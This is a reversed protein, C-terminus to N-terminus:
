RVICLMQLLFDDMDGASVSVTIGSVPYGCVWATSLTAFPIPRFSFKLTYDPPNRQGGYQLREYRKV